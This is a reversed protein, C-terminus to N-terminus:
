FRKVVLYDKRKNMVIGLYRGENKSNLCIMFTRTFTKGKVIVLGKASYRYPLVLLHRRLHNGLTRVLRCGQSMARLSCRKRKM